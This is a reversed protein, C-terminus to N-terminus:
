QQLRNVGMRTLILPDSSQRITLTGGYQPAGLSDWWDGTSTTTVATVTTSTATAATTSTATAATTSTAALTSPTSKTSCSALVLSMVLLCSLFLWSVKKVM